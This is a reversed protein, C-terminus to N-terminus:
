NKPLSLAIGRLGEMASALNSPDPRGTIMQIGFDWQSDILGKEKLEAFLSLVRSGHRKMCISGVESERQYIVTMQSDQDPLSGDLMPIRNSEGAICSLVDSSTAILRDHLGLPPVILAPRKSVPFVTREEIPKRILEDIKVGLEGIKGELSISSAHARHAMLFTITIASAGILIM